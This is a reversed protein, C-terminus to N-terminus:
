IADFCNQEFEKERFFVGIKSDDNWSVLIERLELLFIWRDFFGKRGKRGEGRRDKELRFYSRELVKKKKEGRIVHRIVAAEQHCVYSVPELGLVALGLRDDWIVFPIPFPNIEGGKRM